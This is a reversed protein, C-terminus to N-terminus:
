RGILKKRVEKVDKLCYQEKAEKLTMKPFCDIIGGETANVINLDSNKNFVKIVKLYELFPPYTYIGNVDVKGSRKEFKEKENVEVKQLAGNIIDYTDCSMKNDPYSFDCGVFILSKCGMWNAIISATNVVCGVNAVAPFKKFLYPLVRDCFQVGKHSMNFYLIRGQWMRAIKYDEATSMALIHNSSDVKNLYGLIHDDHCDVSVVLDPDIGRALLAKYARDTSIIIANIDKLEDINKDLSPGAGVIIAPVGECTNRIKIITEGQCVRYYNKAINRTWVGIWQNVFHSDELSLPISVPVRVGKAIPIGMDEFRLLGSEIENKKLELVDDIKDKIDYLTREFIVRDDKNINSGIDKVEIWQLENPNKGYFVVCPFDGWDVYENNQKIQVSCIGSKTDQCDMINAQSQSM